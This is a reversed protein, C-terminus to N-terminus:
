IVISSELNNLAHVQETEIKDMAEAAALLWEIRKATTADHNAQYAQHAHKVAADIVGTDSKIMQSTVSGDIPSVLPSVNADASVSAPSGRWPPLRPIENM